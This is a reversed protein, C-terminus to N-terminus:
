KKNNEIKIMATEYIAKETAIIISVIYALLVLPMTLRGMPFRVIALVSLLIVQTLLIIGLPEIVSKIIGLKHYRIAIYALVLVTIIVVPIIYPKVVDRLRINTNTMIKVNDAKILDEQSYLENIKQVITNKQEETINEATIQIADKYVEIIQINSKEFVEDAIKKIEDINVTKGISLEIKQHHRYKLEVNFGKIAVMAIGVILILAIVICLIKKKTTLQKM